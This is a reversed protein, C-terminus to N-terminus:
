NKILNEQGMDEWWSHHEFDDGELHPDEEYPNFFDLCPASSYLVKQGTGAGTWCSQTTRKSDFSNSRRLPVSLSTAQALLTALESTNKQSLVPKENTAFAATNSARETMISLERSNHQAQGQHIEDIDTQIEDICFSSEDDDNKPVLAPGEIQEMMPRHQLFLSDNM